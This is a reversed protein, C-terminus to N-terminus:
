EARLHVQDVSNNMKARAFVVCNTSKCCEQSRFYALRRSARLEGSECENNEKGGPVQGLWVAHYKSSASRDPAAQFTGECPLAFPV